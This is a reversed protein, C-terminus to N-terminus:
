NNKRPYRLTEVDFESIGIHFSTKERDLNFIKSSHVQKIYAQNLKYKTRLSEYNYVGNKIDGTFDLPMDGFDSLISFCSQAKDAFFSIAAKVSYKNDSVIIVKISNLTADEGGYAHPSNAMKQDVIFVCPAIYAYPPVFQSNNAIIQDRTEFARELVLEESDDIIYINFDKIPFEGQITPNASVTDLLVRGRLFDFKLGDEGRNKVIGDITVSSPVTTVSSDTVFQHYRSSFVNYSKFKSDPASHFTVPKSSYAEGNKLLEYDVWLYFSSLLYHIFQPKIAM